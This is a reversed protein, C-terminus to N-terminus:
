KRIVELGGMLPKLVEPVVISGDAQQYNEMVAIMTRPMGLGSGNLTNVFQPASGDAPRYKINARRAQFQGINSISSVELWEQCGPAWVEVDFTKHSGFGLDGTSQLLVRYTLGLQECTACADAVMNDLEQAANEPMCYKYMEVKDFQHGRKMGRVDRGASMKERRFCATYATLNLPLEAEDLVEGMMIGTLPVEATPVWWFDELHDHYLNEAFKPLQGSAFMIEERVMWPPYFEKYGQRIHLDLMWFILARQLRAGAGELVYFRSGSLKVGAEFDLIGLEPGLEWHPKPEFDFDRKEGVTRIVVNDKDDIGIPVDQDPINPITALQNYLLSEVGKLEEDLLNIDDGLTRMSSIKAEREEKEKMRGIEKSAANREAKKSEVDLILARRKEDLAVIEDIIDTEMQRKSLSEKVLETQERILKIDLM